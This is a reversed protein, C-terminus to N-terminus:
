LLTLNFSQVFVIAPTASSVCTRWIGDPMFDQCVSVIHSIPLHGQAHLLPAFANKATVDRVPNERYQHLFIMAVLNVDSRSKAIRAM